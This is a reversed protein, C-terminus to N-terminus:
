TSIDSHPLRRRASSSSRMSCLWLQRFRDSCMMVLAARRAQTLTKRYAEVKHVGGPRSCSAASAPLQSTQSFFLHHTTPSIAARKAV